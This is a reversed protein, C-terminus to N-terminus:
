GRLALVLENGALAQAALAVYFATLLLMGLGGLKRRPGGRSRLFRTVIASTLAPVALIAWATLARPSLGAAGFTHEGFTHEWPRFVALCLATALLACGAVAAIAGGGGLVNSYMREGPATAAPWATKRALEYSLFVLVFAALVAGDVPAPPLGSTALFLGYLFVSLLVNVPYTVLLNLLMGDRVAPSWAELRVLTVAHVLDLAIVLVLAWGTWASLLGSLALAVLAAGGGWVALDRQSIVGQVLLRDPNHVRDYDLDKVEDIARLVFLVLLVTLGGLALPLDLRLPVGRALALSGVLSITWAAAFAVHLGPAFVDQLFRWLRALSSM